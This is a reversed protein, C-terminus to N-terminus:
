TFSNCLGGCSLLDQLSASCLGFGSLFTLCKLHNRETSQNVSEFKFVFGGLMWLTALSGVIIFWAYFAPSMRRSFTQPVEGLMHEISSVGDSMGDDAGGMGMGYSEAMSSDYLSTM